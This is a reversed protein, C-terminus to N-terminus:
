QAKSREMLQLISQLSVHLWNPRQIVDHGMETLARDLVFADLLVSIGTKSKPVLNSDRVTELYAGLFGASMRRSWFEAWPRIARLQEEQLTGAERQQFLVAQSAYDLSRIMAAVDRLVPRKIRRESLSRGPEGEFDLIVFDKGTYLVHGLHYNGHCRIRVTDLASQHVTRFRALMTDRMGLVREALPKASDPLNKLERQLIQFHHTLHNRFSQYLSRQYFPTFPEPAFDKNDGDSALALHLEGTRKGLLRVMEFFAGLVQVTNRPVEREALDILSLGASGDDRAEPPLVMVRDFYRKM